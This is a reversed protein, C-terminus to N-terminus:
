LLIVKTQQHVLSPLMGVVTELVHIVDSSSSLEHNLTDFSAQITGTPLRM